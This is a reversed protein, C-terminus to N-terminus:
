TKSSFVSVRVLYRSTFAWILGDNGTKSGVKAFWHHTKTHHTTVHLGLTMQLHHNANEEM